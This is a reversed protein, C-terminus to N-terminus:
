KIRVPITLDRTGPPYCVQDDCAQIRLKSALSYEGPSASKDAKLTARIEIDGEYVALPKESFSLKVNIPPPYSLAGVSVGDAPTITLETPILYSFTPPNANVHYGSQITLRVTAEASEGASIEAPQVMAKVVDTSAIRKGEAVSPTLGFSESGPKTASQSCGAFTFLCGLIITLLTGHSTMATLPPFTPFKEIPGSRTM